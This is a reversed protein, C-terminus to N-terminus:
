EILLGKLVSQQCIKWYNKLSHSMAASQLHFIPLELFGAAQTRSAATNTGASLHKGVASLHLMKWQQAANEASKVAGAPTHKGRPWGTLIYLQKNM